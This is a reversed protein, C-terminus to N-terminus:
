PQAMNEITSRLVKTYADIIVKDVEREPHIRDYFGTQIIADIYRDRTLKKTLSDLHQQALEKTKNEDLALHVGGINGDSCCSCSYHGSANVLNNEVNEIRIEPVPVYISPLAKAAMTICDEAIMKALIDEQGLFLNKYNERANPLWNEYNLISKRPHVRYKARAAQPIIENHRISLDKIKGHMRPEQSKDNMTIMDIICDPFEEEKGLMYGRVHLDQPSMGLLYECTGSYRQGIHLMSKIEFIGKKQAAMLADVKEKAESIEDPLNDIGSYKETCWRIHEINKKTEEDMKNLRRSIIQL